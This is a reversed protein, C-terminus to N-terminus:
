TRPAEGAGEEAEEEGGDAAEEAPRRGAYDREAEGTTDQRGKRSRVRLIAIGGLLIAVSGYQAPTLGLYRADANPLDTARLFDLLFRAPAYLVMMLGLFFGHFRPKRDLAWMTLFIALTWLAEYLGLDHRPGTPFDVALFFDTLRGKHDHATFCGLRGLFWGAMFGISLCDAYAWFPARRLRLLLPAAIAAGIFGGTSSFGNWVQLLYLPEELFRDFNYALVHVVHAFVFAIGVMGLTTDVTVKVSLGERIARARAVEMGVYIGSVVLLTWSDIQLPGLSIRPTSFYPIM